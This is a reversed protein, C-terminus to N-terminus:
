VRRDYSGTATKTSGYPSLIIKAGIDKKRSMDRVMGSPDFDPVKSVKATAKFKPKTASADDDDLGGLVATAGASAAASKLRNAKAKSNSNKVLGTAVPQSGSSVVSRDSILRV